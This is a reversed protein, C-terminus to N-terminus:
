VFSFHNTSETLVKLIARARFVHALTIYKIHSVRTTKKKKEEYLIVILQIMFYM